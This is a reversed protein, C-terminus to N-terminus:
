PVDSLTSRVVSNELAQFLDDLDRENINNNPSIEIDWWKEKNIKQSILDIELLEGGSLKYIDNFITDPGPVWLLSFYNNLSKKNIEM